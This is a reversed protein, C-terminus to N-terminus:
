TPLKAPRGALLRGTNRGPRLWPGQLHPLWHDAKGLSHALVRVTLWHRYRTSPRCDVTAHELYWRLHKVQWQYPGVQWRRWIVEAIHQARIVHARVTTARAGPLRHALLARAQRAATIQNAPGAM